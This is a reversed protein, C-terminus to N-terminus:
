YILHLPLLEYQLSTCSLALIINVEDFCPKSAFLKITQKCPNYHVGQKSQVLVWFSKKHKGKKFVFWHGIHTVLLKKPALDM